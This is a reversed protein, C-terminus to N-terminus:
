ADRSLHTFVAESEARRTDDFVAIEIRAITAADLCRVNVDVGDPHSRPVYFAKIGCHACFRHKWAPTSPTSACINV